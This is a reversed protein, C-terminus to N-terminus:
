SSGAPFFRRLVASMQSTQRIATPAAGQPAAVGVDATAPDCGPAGANRRREEKFGSSQTANSVRTTGGATATTTSNPSSTDGHLRLGKGRHRHSGGVATLSTPHRHIPQQGAGGHAGSNAPPQEM